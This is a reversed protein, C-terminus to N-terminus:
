LEVKMLNKHIVVVRDRRTALINAVVIDVGYNQIAGIAKQELIELDTELKFSVLTTNPNWIKKIHGMMKPVPQM